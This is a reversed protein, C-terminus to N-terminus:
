RTGRSSGPATAAAGPTAATSSFPHSTSSKGEGAARVESPGPNPAAEPSPSQPSASIGRRSGSQSHQLEAGSGAQGWGRANDPFPHQLMAPIRQSHGWPSEHHCQLPAGPAALGRSDGVRLLTSWVGSWSHIGFSKQETPSLCWGLGARTAEGHGKERLDSAM